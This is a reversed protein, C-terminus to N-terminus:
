GTLDSVEFQGAGPACELKPPLASMCEPTAEAVETAISGDAVYVPEFDRLAAGGAPGLHAIRETPLVPPMPCHFPAIEDRQEATGRGRPRKRRV